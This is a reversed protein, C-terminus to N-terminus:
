EKIEFNIVLIEVLFDMIRNWFNVFWIIFNLENLIGEFKGKVKLVVEYFVKDVKEISVGYEVSVIVEVIM